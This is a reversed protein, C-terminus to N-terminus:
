SSVFASESITCMNWYFHIASILLSLFIPPQLTYVPPSTPGFRTASTLSRASWQQSVRDSERFTVVVCFAVMFRKDMLCCYLFM